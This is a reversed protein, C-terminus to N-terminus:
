GVGSDADDRAQGVSGLTATPSDPARAGQGFFYGIALGTLGALPTLLLSLDQTQLGQAIGYAVVGITGGVLLIALLARMRAELLAVTLLHEQHRGYRELEAKLAELRLTEEQSTPTISETSDAAM